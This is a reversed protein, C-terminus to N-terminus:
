KVGGQLFTMQEQTPKTETISVVRVGGLREMDMALIEKVGRESGPPADVQLVIYYM